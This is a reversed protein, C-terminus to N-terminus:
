PLIEAAARPQVALSGTHLTFYLNAAVPAAGTEHPPPDAGYFSEDPTFRKDKALRVSSPPTPATLIMGGGGIACTMRFHALTLGDEPESTGAHPHYTQDDTGANFDNGARDTQNILAYNIDPVPLANGWIIGGSADVGVGMFEPTIKDILRTNQWFPDAVFAYNFDEQKFGQANVNFVGSFDGAAFLGGAADFGDSSFLHSPIYPAGAAPPVKAPFPALDMDMSASYTHQLTTLVVKAAPTTPLSAAAPPQDPTFGLTYVDPASPVGVTGESRTMPLSGGGNFSPMFVYGGAMAPGAKRVTPMVVVDVAAQPTPSSAPSRLTVRYHGPETYEHTETASTGTTGDGFDWLVTAAPNLAHFDVSHGNGANGATGFLPGAAITVPGGPGAAMQLQYPAATTGYGFGEVGAVAIPSGAIPNFRDRLAIEAASLTRAPSGVPLSDLYAQSYPTLFASAALGPAGPNAPLFAPHTATFNMPMVPMRAFTFAGTADTTATAYASFPLGNVTVTAGQVPAGGTTRVVGRVDTVAQGDLRLSWSQLTIATPGNNTIELRWYGTGNVLLPDGKTRPLNRLFAALDGAIPRDTPFTLKEMTKPAVTGASGDFLVLTQGGPDPSKLRLVFNAHPLAAFQVGVQLARLDMETAIPIANTSSWTQPRTLGPNVTLATALTLSKSVVPEVGTDSSLQRRTALPTVSQREMRFRGILRIPEKMMGHVIETYDGEIAYGDTPNGTVLAGSFSVTRQIPFPFPNRAQISGNNNWDVDDGGAATEAFQDFPENNQDGPPLVFSGGLTFSNGNDSLRYGALPVDVPWLLANSSDILGRLFGDTKPDEFFSVFLDIDPVKNRKGNVTSITAYGKWDGELGATEAIVNYAKDGVSTRLTLTGRHEGRGLNKRDLRLYVIDNELTTVGRLSAYDAPALPQVGNFRVREGPTNYLKIWPDPVREGSANVTTTGTDTIPTWIVEWIMIGGGITRGPNAPDPGSLNSISLTQVDEGPFFRITEIQQVNRPSRRAAGGLINVDERGPFNNTPEVDVEPRVTAVLRPKLLAPDTVRVWYGRGLDANTYNPLPADAPQGALPDPPNANPDTAPRLLKRYGPAAGTAEWTLIADYDFGAATLVALLSLPENNPISTGGVPFGVMNWGPVLDQAPFTPGLPANGSVTLTSTGSGTLNVWYAKGPEISALGFLSNALNQDAQQSATGSARQHMLWRGAAADFHWVARFNAVSAFVAAPASNAPHVQFQVLNWGGNLTISQTQTTQAPAPLAAAIMGALAVASARSLCRRFSLQNFPALKMDTTMM